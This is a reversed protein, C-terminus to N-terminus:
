QGIGCAEAAALIAREIEEKPDLATLEGEGGLQEVICPLLSLVEEGVAVVLEDSCFQLRVVAVLQVAPDGPPQGSGHAWPYDEVVASICDRVEPTLGAAAYFTALSVDVVSDPALCELLVHEAIAPMGTVTVWADGQIASFTDVGLMERLCSAEEEAFVAVVDGVTTGDDIM